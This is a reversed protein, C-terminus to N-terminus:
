RGLREHRIVLMEPTEVETYINVKAGILPGTVMDRVADAEEKTGVMKWVTVLGDHSLPPGLKENLKLDFPKGRRIAFTWVAVGGQGDGEISSEAM